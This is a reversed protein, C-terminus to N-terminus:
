NSILIISDIKKKCFAIRKLWWHKENDPAIHYFNILMELATQYNELTMM